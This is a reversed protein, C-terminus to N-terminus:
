NSPAPDVPACAARPLAREISTAEVALGLACALEDLVADFDAATSCGTIARRAASAHPMGALYWAAHKRMRVVSRPEREELLHAHRRAMAIRAAYSPSEPPEEGALAARVDAFVWPNGEAGRAIMVADCGAEARMALADAGSRVDGNGVVPVSVAARVRAVTGWDAEGKYYQMAFRGHVCVAAAGAEEMRQAFAPAVEAGMEYGRRFKCTVPVSVAGAVASVIRAALEPERMLAAGDGKSVIKRAPCGMNIDLYALADGLEEEIWAAERAMVEPERGFLQVAVERENPARELLHRTRENAYSLGKASVMETYTLSAGQELCLQRFAPDSVGAMPALLVPHAAFFARMDCAGTM